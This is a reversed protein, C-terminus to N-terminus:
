HNLFHRCTNRSCAGSTFFEADYMNLGAQSQQAPSLSDLRRFANSSASFFAGAMIKMSSISEMAGLRSFVCARSLRAHRQPEQAGVM